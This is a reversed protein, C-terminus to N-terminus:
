LKTKQLAEVEKLVKKTEKFEKDKEKKTIEIM